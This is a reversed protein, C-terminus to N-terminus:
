DACARMTRIRERHSPSFLKGERMQHKIPVGDSVVRFRDVFVINEADNGHARDIMRTGEVVGRFPDGTEMLLDIKMLTGDKKRVEFCFCHM